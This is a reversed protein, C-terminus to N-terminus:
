LLTPRDGSPPPLQLRARAQGAGGRHLQQHQALADIGFAQLLQAHDVLTLAGPFRQVVASRQGLLSLARAGLASALMLSSTLSAWRLRQVRLQCRLAVVKHAVQVV